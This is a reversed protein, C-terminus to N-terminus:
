KGARRVQAADRVVSTPPAGIPQDCSVLASKSVTAAAPWANYRGLGLDLGDGDGGFIM